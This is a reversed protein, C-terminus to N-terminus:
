DKKKGFSIKNETRNSIREINARHCWVILVAIIVVSLSLLGPMPSGFAVAFYGHLLVPYLIAVCISGLSVYRSAAVICAFLLFLVLFPLPTLMLAMASTVLVGKGGKFGYYIPFVHGLVAFLGAVYCFGMGTSVGAVYNFGFVIGSIFIALATKFVDGFLTLGAAGKGYTRLMNTMGANGSGHRRIDDRYLLKSIIIASNVSGLLYGAVIVTIASLIFWLYYEGETAGNPFLYSFLGENLNFM